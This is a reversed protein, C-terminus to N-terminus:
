LMIEAVLAAALFPTPLAVALAKAVIRGVRRGRLRGVLAAVGAKAADVAVCTAALVAGSRFVHRRLYYHAKGAVYSDLVLTIPTLVGNEGAELLQGALWEAKAQDFHLPEALARAARSGVTALRGAEGRAAAAQAQWAKGVKSRRTRSVPHTLPPPPPPSPSTPLLALRPRRGKGRQRQSFRAAEAGRRWNREQGSM